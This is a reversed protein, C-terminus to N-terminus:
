APHIQIDAMVTYRPLNNRTINSIRVAETKIIAAEIRMKVQSVSKSNCIDM